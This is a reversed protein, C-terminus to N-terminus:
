YLFEATRLEPPIQALDEASLAGDMVPPLDRAVHARPLPLPERKPFASHFVGLKELICEVAQPQLHGEDDYVEHQLYESKQDELVADKNSQGPAKVINYFDFLSMLMAEREERDEAAEIRTLEALITNYRDARWEAAGHTRHLTLYHDRLESNQELNQILYSVIAHPNYQEIFAAEIREDHRHVRTYPDDFTAAQKFGPIGFKEGLNRRADLFDHADNDPIRAVIAEFLEFRLEALTKLLAEEPKEDRKGFCVKLYEKLVTEEYRGGCLLSASIFAFLTKETEAPDKKQELAVIIHKIMRPLLDFFITFEPKGAVPVGYFHRRETFRQIFTELDHRLLVQAERASGVEPDKERANKLFMVPDIYHDADPMTFNLTDFLTLLRGLPPNAEPDKTPPEFHEGGTKYHSGALQWHSFAFRDVCEKPYRTLMHQCSHSFDEQSVESFLATSLATDNLLFVIEILDGPLPFLHNKSLRSLHKQLEDSGVLVGQFTEPPRELIDQLFAPYREESLQFLDGNDARANFLAQLPTHGKANKMQPDIHKQLLRVMELSGLFFARHLASNGKEDKSQVNVNRDLMARVGALLNSSVATLFLPSHGDAAHLPCGDIVLRQLAKDMLGEVARQTLRAKVELPLEKMSAGAEALLLLTADDHEAYAIPVLPQFLDATVSETLLFKGDKLLAYAEKLFGFKLYMEGASRHGNQVLCDVIKKSIQAVTQQMKRDNDSGKSFYTTGQLQTVAQMSIRLLRAQQRTPAAQYERVLQIVRDEFMKAGTIPSITGEKMQQFIRQYFQHETAKEQIPHHQVGIPQLGPRFIPAPHRSDVLATM